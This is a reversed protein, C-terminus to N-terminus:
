RGQRKRTKKKATQKRRAPRRAKKAVAVKARQLRLAV